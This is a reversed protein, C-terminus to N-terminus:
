SQVIIEVPAFIGIAASNVSLLGAGSSVTIRTVHSASATATGIQIITRSGAPFTGIAGYLGRFLVIRFIDFVPDFVADGFVALVNVQLL